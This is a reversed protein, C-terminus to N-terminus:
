AQPGVVPVDMAYQLPIEMIPVQLQAYDMSGFDFDFYADDWIRIFPNVNQRGLDNFSLTRYFLGGNM